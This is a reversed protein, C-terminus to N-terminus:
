RCLALRLIKQDQIWIQVQLDNIPFAHRVPGTVDFKQNERHSPILQRLHALDAAQGPQLTEGNCELAPVDTIAVLLNADFFLHQPGGKKLTFEFAKWPNKSNKVPQLPGLQKQVQAKPTGLALGGASAHFEPANPTPPTASASPTPDFPRYAPHTGQNQSGDRPTIAPSPTPDFPRYDKYITPSADPTPEAPPTAPEQGSSYTVSAEGHENVVKTPTKHVMPRVQPRNARQWYLYGGIAACLCLVMVCGCTALTVLICEGRTKRM